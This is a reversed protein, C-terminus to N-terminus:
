ILSWEGGVGDARGAAMCLCSHRWTFRRKALTPLRANWGSSGNRGSRRRRSRIPTTAPRESSRGTVCNSSSCSTSKGGGGYYDVVGKVIWLGERVLVRRLRRPPRSGANSEQFAKMKQRGRLREGSQPWEMTYEEHRIQDEAEASLLSYLETLFQHAAREDMKELDSDPQREDM